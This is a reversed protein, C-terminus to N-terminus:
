ETALRENKKKEDKRMFAEKLVTRKKTIDKLKKSLQSDNQVFKGLFQDLSDFFNEIFIVQKAAKYRPKIAVPDKKNFKASLLRPYVREVLNEYRDIYSEISKNFRGDRSEVFNALTILNTQKESFIPLNFSTLVIEDLLGSDNLYAPNKSNIEKVLTIGEEVNNKNFTPMAILDSLESRSEEIPKGFFLRYLWSSKRPQSVTTPNNSNDSLNDFTKSKKIKPAGPTKLNQTNDKPQKKAAMVPTTSILRRGTQSPARRAVQQTTLMAELAMITGMLSIIILYHWTRKM